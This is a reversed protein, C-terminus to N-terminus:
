SLVTACRSSAPAGVTTGSGATERKRKWSVRAAASQGRKGRALIVIRGIEPARELVLAVWVKALFGTVGTVLVHKGRLEERIGNM